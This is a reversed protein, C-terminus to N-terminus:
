YVKAKKLAEDALYLDTESIDDQADLFLAFEEFVAPTVWINAPGNKNRIIKYKNIEIKYLFVLDYRDFENIFIQRDDVANTFIYKDEENQAIRIELMIMNNRTRNNIQTVHLSFYSVVFASICEASNVGWILAFQGAKTL